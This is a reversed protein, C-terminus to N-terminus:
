GVQGPPRYTEGPKAPERLPPMRADVHAASTAVPSDPYRAAASAMMFVAVVMLSPIRSPIGSSSTM